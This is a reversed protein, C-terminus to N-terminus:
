VIAAPELHAAYIGDPIANFASERVLYGTVRLERDCYPLGCTYWRARRDVADLIHLNSWATPDGGM